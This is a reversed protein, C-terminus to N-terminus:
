GARDEMSCLKQRVFQHIKEGCTGDTNASVQHYATLQREKDFGNGTVNGNLFDPLSNFANELCAYQVWQSQEQFGPEHEYLETLDFRIEIEQCEDTKFDVKYLKRDHFSFLYYSEIETKKMICGLYGNAWVNFYGNKGGESESVPPIWETVEGTNKNLRVYKNGWCPSLYVDDKYFVANSFPRDMCEHGYVVHHCVFGELSILYEQIEETRPNWRTIATGSYPLLWINKDNPLSVMGMYGGSNETHLAMCRQRGTEADFELIHHDVPSALYLKDGKVGVAGCRHEGNAMGIFVSKDIDFYSVEEKETDYRVLFPYQDPIFFLYNGVGAVSYFAGTKEVFSELEIQRKVGNEGIILIDQANIPYMYAKGHMFVIGGYYNGYAYKSLDCFYRFTGEEESFRYLKNGQTMMWQELCLAGERMRYVIAPSGHIVAGRWDGEEPIGHISNDLLFLPKGAMGFLSTVSTASDGIYADCLAITSSIDPTDDYIGIGKRIFEEKLADYQPKYIKRMSQFTSELLPHPRWLLCSDERGEFCQFVYRMKKLFQETNGLMGNISTNYFYVKKGKMKEKWGDPPSLPNACMQLTRDFKPSGIPILKEEPIAPDFFKRFKEAQIMIYDANYYAPCSAQGESMGGTTSYYPIYVLCDTCKKLESSYFEPAVSTVYNAYDYPNHIYIVDPRREKLCYAGYHTVPVDSPMLGGEYHFVSARGNQDRDYYPIPVVYADCDPDQEAAKWVSEMSDWMSAKYPLFVIEFRVKIDNRVSNQIRILAKHLKKCVKEGIIKQENALTEYIQYILECYDELLSVTYTGEGETKEILNGLGLAGEQCQGLLGMAAPDNGKEIQRKIEDHAQSLVKLFDEAQKKQAKRM